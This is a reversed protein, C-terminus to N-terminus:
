YMRYVQLYKYYFRVKIYNGTNQYVPYFDHYAYTFSNGRKTTYSFYKDYDSNRRIEQQGIGTWKYAVVRDGKDDDMYMKGYYDDKVSDYYTVFNPEFASTIYSHCSWSNTNSDEFDDLCAFNLTEWSDIIGHGYYDNQRSTTKSYDDPDTDQGGPDCHYKIFNKVVSSPPNSGRIKSLLQYTEAAEGAVLPAAVSTGTVDDFDDLHGNEDKDNQIPVYVTNGPAMVDLEDGYNSGQYDNWVWREGEGDMGSTNVAGVAMVDDYAAPYSVDSNENGSSAIMVTEGDSLLDEVANQLETWHGGGWSCSVIDPDHWLHLLELARQYCYNTRETDRFDVVILDVYPAMRLFAGVTLTGHNRGDYVGVKQESDYEYDSYSTWEDETDIFEHWSEYVYEWHGFIWWDVVWYKYWNIDIYWMTRLTGDPRYMLDEHPHVGTDVIAATVGQGPKPMDLKDIWNHGNDVNVMEYANDDAYGPIAALEDLFNNSETPDVEIVTKAYSSNIFSSIVKHSGRTSMSDTQGIPEQELDSFETMLFNNENYGRDMGQYM